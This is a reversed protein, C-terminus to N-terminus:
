ATLLSWNATSLEALRLLYGLSSYAHIEDVASPLGHGSEDRWNYLNGLIMTLPDILTVSQGHTIKDLLKKRGQASRYLKLADEDSGLKITAATVLIAEAAAGAMVCSALYNATRYCSSAEAARQRFAHGFRSVHPALVETYRDPEIPVQAAEAVLWSAGFGTVAFGDGEIPPGRMQDNPEVEGPRLVGIRCLHWAADSFPQSFKRVQGQSLPVELGRPRWYERIVASVQVDYLRAATLRVTEGRQSARLLGVLFNLADDFRIEGEAM